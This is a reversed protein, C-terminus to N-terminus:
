SAYIGNIINHLCLTYLENKNDCYNSLSHVSGHHAKFDFSETVLKVYSLLQELSGYRTVNMFIDINCYIFKFIWDSLDTWYNNETPKDFRDVLDKQELAQVLGIIVVQSLNLYELISLLNFPTLDVIDTEMRM